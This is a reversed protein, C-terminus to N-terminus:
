PNFLIQGDPIDHRLSDLDIEVLIAPDIRGVDVKFRGYDYFEDTLWEQWFEDDEAEDPFQSLFLARKEEIFNRLKQVSEDSLGLWGYWEEDAWEEHFLTVKYFNRQTTEM